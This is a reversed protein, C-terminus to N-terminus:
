EVIVFIGKAGDRLIYLQDGARLDTITVPRGGKILVASDVTIENLDSNINWSDAFSNWDKVEEIELYSDAANIGKLRALSVRETRGPRYGPKTIVIGLANRGDALSYVWYSWSDDTTYKENFRSELFQSVPIIQTGGSQTTDLIKTDSNVSLIIDDRVEKWENNDLYYYYYDDLQYWNDRVWDIRGLYINFRTSEGTSGEIVIVNARNDGRYYEQTGATFIGDGESLAYNDILRGDKVMITGEGYVIVANDLVFRNNLWDHSSVKGYRNQEYGDFIQIKVAKERGFYDATAIYAKSDRYNDALQELTIPVNNCYIQTTKDIELFLQPVLDLWRAHNYKQVNGLTLKGGFRDSSLIDAKYINQILTGQGAIELKSVKNSNIENFYLRVQDGQKLSSLREQRGDKIIQANSALIFEGTTNDPLIITIRDGWISRVKGSIVRRGPTLYGESVGELSAQIQVVEGNKVVFVADQGYKLDALKAARGNITVETNYNVPYSFLKGEESLFTLYQSNNQQSFSEVKGTIRQTDSKGVSVYLIEKNENIIYEIVDGSSLLSSLGLNGNKYVLFQRDQNGLGSEAVFQLSSGDSGVVSYTTVVLNKGQEIRNVSSIEGVTGRGTQLNRNALFQEDVRALLSVIEGRKVSRTPHFYNNQDGAVLGRQAAAEIYPLYQSNISTWDRFNFVSQQESGYVPNLGISKALWFVVDQMAASSKWDRNSREEETILGERVALELYGAAWADVATQGELNQQSGIRQAEGELGKQRLLLSIVEQASMVQEPKFQNNGYGRVVSLAAMRYIDGKAWHNKIDTFNSNSYLNRGYRPGTMVVSDAARAIPKFSSVTIIM